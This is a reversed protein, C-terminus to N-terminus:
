DENKYIFYEIFNGTTSLNKNKLKKNNYFISSVVLNGEVDQYEIKLKRRDFKKDEIISSFFVGKEHSLGLFVCTNVPLESVYIENIEDVVIGEKTLIDIDLNYENITINNKKLTLVGEKNSDLKVNYLHALDDCEFWQENSFPRFKKPVKKAINSNNIYSSIEINNNKFYEYANINIKGMVLELGLGSLTIEFKM